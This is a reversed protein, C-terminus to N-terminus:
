HTLPLLMSFPMGPRALHIHDSNRPLSWQVRRVLYLSIELETINYYNSPKAISYKVFFLMHLFGVLPAIFLQSHADSHESGKFRNTLVLTPITTKQHYFLLTLLNGM